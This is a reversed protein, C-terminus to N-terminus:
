RRGRKMVNLDDHDTSTLKLYGIKVVVHAYRDLPFWSLILCDFLCAFIGLVHGKKRPQRGEPDSKRFSWFYPKKIHKLSTHTGFKLDRGNKRQDPILSM